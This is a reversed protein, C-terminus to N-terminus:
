TAGVMTSATRCFRFNPDVDRVFVWSKDKVYARKCEFIFLLKPREKDVAILDIAATKSFAVGFEEAFIGLGSTRGVEDLVRKKLFVGHCNLAELVANNNM